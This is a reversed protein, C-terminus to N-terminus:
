GRAVPQRLARLRDRFHVLIRRRLFANSPWAESLERRNRIPNPDTECIESRLERYNQVARARM